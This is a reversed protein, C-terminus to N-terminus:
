PSYVARVYINKVIMVSGETKKSLPLNVDPVLPVVLYCPSHFLWGLLVASIGLSTWIIHAVSCFFFPFGPATWTTEPQQNVGFLAGSSRRTLSVHGALDLPRLRFRRHM